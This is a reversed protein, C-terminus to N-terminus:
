SLKHKKHDANKQLIEKEYPHYLFYASNNLERYSDQYRPHNLLLPRKMIDVISSRNIVIAIIKAMKIAMKIM